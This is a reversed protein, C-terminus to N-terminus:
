GQLGPGFLSFNVIAVVVNGALKMWIGQWMQVAFGLASVRHGLATVLLSVTM